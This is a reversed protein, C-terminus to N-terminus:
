FGSDQYNTPFIVNDIVYEVFTSLFEQFDNENVHNKFVEYSIEFKKYDPDYADRKYSNFVTIERGNLSFYLSVKSYNGLVTMLFQGQEKGGENEYIKYLDDYSERNEDIGRFVREMIRNMKM